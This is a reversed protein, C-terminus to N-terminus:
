ETHSFRALAFWVVYALMTDHDGVRLKVASLCAGVEMRSILANGRTAVLGRRILVHFILADWRLAIEDRVIRGTRGISRLRRDFHVATTSHSIGAKWGELFGIAGISQCRVGSVHHIDVGDIDTQIVVVRVTFAILQRKEFVAFSCAGLNTLM